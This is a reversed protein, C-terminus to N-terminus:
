MKKRRWKEHQKAHYRAVCVWIGMKGLVIIEDDGRGEEMAGGIWSGREDGVGGSEQASLPRLDVLLMPPAAWM